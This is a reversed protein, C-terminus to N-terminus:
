HQLWFWFVSAYYYAPTSVVSASQFPTAIVKSREMMRGERSLPHMSCPHLWGQCGGLKLHYSSMCLARDGWERRELLMPTVTLTTACTHQSVVHMSTWHRLIPPTPPCPPKCSCNQSTVHPSFLWFVVPCASLLEKSRPAIGTPSLRIYWRVNMQLGIFSFPLGHVSGKVYTLSKSNSRLLTM